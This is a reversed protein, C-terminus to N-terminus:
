LKDEEEDINIGLEKLIMSIKSKVVGLNWDDMRRMPVNLQRLVQRCLKIKENNDRDNQSISEVQSKIILLNSDNRRDMPSKMQRLIQNCINKITNAIM